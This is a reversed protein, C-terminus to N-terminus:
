VWKPNFMKHITVIRSSKVGVSPDFSLPIDKQDFLVLVSARNHIVSHNVNLIGLNTNSLKWIAVSLVVLRLSFASLIAALM